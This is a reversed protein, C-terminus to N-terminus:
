KEQASLVKLLEDANFLMTDIYSGRQPDGETGYPDLVKVEGGVEKAIIEAVRPNLQPESFIARIDLRKLEDTVKRLYKESPTKGAYEEIVAVIKIHYRRAFYPWANHFSVFGKGSVPALKTAIDSDLKQLKTIYEAANAKFSDTGEPDAKILADRIIKVSAIALQPDLWFHPNVAGHVHDHHGAEDHAVAHAANDLSSVDPLDANDMLEDGVSIVPLNKGGAASLSAGWDDMQLGSKLFLGAKSIVRMHRPGPDFTHPSAGAPLLTEVYVRDGGVQRAWDALPFITSVIILKGNSEEPLDRRESCGTICLGTICLLTILSVLLAIGTYNRGFNM